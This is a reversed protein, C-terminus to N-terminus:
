APLIKTYRFCVAFDLRFNCIDIFLGLFINAFIYIINKKCVYICLHMYVCMIPRAFLVTGDDIRKSLKDKSQCM